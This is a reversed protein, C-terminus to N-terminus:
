GQYKSRYLGKMKDNIEGVFNFHLTGNKSVPLKEPFTLTATEDAVSVDIKEAVIANGTDNKFTVNKIDIDLSNLVITDTSENM